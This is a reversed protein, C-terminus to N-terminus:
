LVGKVEMEGNFNWIQRLLPEPSEDYCLRTSVSVTEGLAEVLRDFGLLAFDRYFGIEFSDQNIPLLAVSVWIVKDEWLNLTVETYPTTLWISLRELSEEEDESIDVSASALSYRHRRLRAAFEQIFESRCLPINPLQSM